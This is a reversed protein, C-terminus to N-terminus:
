LRPKSADRTLDRLDRPLVEAHRRAADLAHHGSRLQEGSTASQGARGCRRELRDIWKGGNTPRLQWGGRVCADRQLIGM